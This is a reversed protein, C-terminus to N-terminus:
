TRVRRPHLRASACVLLIVLVWDAQTSSPPGLIRIWVALALLGLASAAVIAVLAVHTASLTRTREEHRM